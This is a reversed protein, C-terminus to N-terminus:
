ILGSVIVNVRRNSTQKRGRGSENQTMGERGGLREGERERERGRGGERKRERERNRMKGSRYIFTIAIELYCSQICKSAIVCTTLTVCHHHIFATLINVLLVTCLTLQM